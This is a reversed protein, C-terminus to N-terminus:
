GKRRGKKDIEEVLEEISDPGKGAFQLIMNGLIIEAKGAPSGPMVSTILVGRHRALSHYRFSALVVILTSIFVYSSELTPV